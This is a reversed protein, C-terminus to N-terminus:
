IYLDSKRFLEEMILGGAVSNLCLAPRPVVGERRRPPQRPVWVLYNTKPLFHSHVWYIGESESFWPNTLHNQKQNLPKNWYSMVIVDSPFVVHLFNPNTETGAM